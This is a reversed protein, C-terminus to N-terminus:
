FTAAQRLISASRALWYPRNLLGLFVFRPAKGPAANKTQQNPRHPTLLATLEPLVEIELIKARCDSVDNSIATLPPAQKCRVLCFCAAALSLRFTWSPLIDYQCFNDIRM